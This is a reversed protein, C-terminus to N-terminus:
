SPHSALTAVGILFLSLVIAVIGLAIASGSAYRWGRRTRWAWVGFAISGLPLAAALIGVGLNSGGSSGMGIAHFSALGAIVGTCM